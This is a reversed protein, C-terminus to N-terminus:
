CVQGWVRDWGATKGHGFGDKFLIFASLMGRENRPNM